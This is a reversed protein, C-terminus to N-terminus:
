HWHQLQSISHRKVPDVRLSWAETCHLTRPSDLRRPPRRRSRAVIGSITQQKFYLAKAIRCQSLGAMISLALPVEHRKTRRNEDDQMPITVTTRALVRWSVIEPVGQVISYVRSILIRSILINARYIHSHVRPGWWGQTYSHSYNHELIDKPQQIKKHAIKYATTNKAPSRLWRPM